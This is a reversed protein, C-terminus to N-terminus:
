LPIYVPYTKVGKSKLFELPPITPVILELSSFYWVFTECFQVFSILNDDRQTYINDIIQAANLNGNWILIIYQYLKLIVEIHHGQVKLDSQPLNTYRTCRWNTVGELCPSLAPTHTHLGWTIEPEAFIYLFPCRQCQVTFGLFFWFSAM